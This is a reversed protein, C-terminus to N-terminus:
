RTGNQIYINDSRQYWDFMPPIKATEQEKRFEVLYNIMPILEHVGAIRSIRPGACPRNYIQDVLFVHKGASALQIATRRRDEVFYCHGNLYNLKENSNGTIICSYPVKCFRQILKHTVTAARIPRSTVIHVPDETIKYLMELLNEASDIIPINKYDEFVADFVKWIEKRSIEPDTQIRYNHTDLMQCDLMSILKEKIPTVIDVLVGDLDFAITCRNNMKLEM